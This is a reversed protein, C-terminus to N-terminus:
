KNRFDINTQVTATVPRRLVSTVQAQLTLTLPATASPLDAQFNTINNALIDQRVLTSANNLVKRMLKNGSVLEYQIYKYEVSSCVNDADMCSADRCGWKTTAGWHAVDGSADLLNDGTHCVVPISFKIIDTSNFGQGDLLTVQSFKSQRLEATMQDLAKRLSEQVQIGAEATFWSAEGSSLAAYGGAAMFAIIVVTVMLEAFSFGKEDKFNM